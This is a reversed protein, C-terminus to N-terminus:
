IGLCKGVTEPLLGPPYPKQLYMSERGGLDSDVLEQAYGSTLIVKLRPNSDLLQSALQMGTMGEPMSLDTLLVDFNGCREEWCKVAELGSGASVVDYNARRLTQVAMERLVPEDEVILVSGATGSQTRREKAQTRPTAQVTAAPPAHISKQSEPLYIRFTTGEGVKSKIEIWGRHERIINFVTALGLGNGKGPPKTTFFPEFMRALTEPGMGLGTDSVELCAFQGAVADPNTAAQTNDVEVNRTTISLNGGDPMADRANVALNIIVQQLMGADGEIVSHDAKCYFNLTVRQDLAGQIMPGLTILTKNLDLPKMQLARPRAFLMLQQALVNASDTVRTILHLRDCVPSGAPCEPLALDVHARIVMLNNKFEHALGAAMKGVCDLQQTRRVQAELALRALYSGIGPAVSDLERMVLSPLATQAYLTILGLLHEDIMLPYTIASVIHNKELWDADTLRHDESAPCSLFPEGHIFDIAAPIIGPPTESLLGACATLDLEGRKPDFVHIQALQITLYRAMAKVCPALIEPVTGRGTLARGVDAAFAALRTEGETARMFQFRRELSFRIARDISRGDAIGKILYDAAGARIAEREVAEDRQGTLLLIPIGCGHSRAMNLLDIGTQGGIRYDVLCADHENRGLQELGAEFTGVWDCEYQTSQVEALMEKTLLHDERDDEIM